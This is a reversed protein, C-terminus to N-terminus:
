PLLAERMKQLPQRREQPTMYFQYGFESLQLELMEELGIRAFQRNLLNDDDLADILESMASRDNRLILSDVAVLRVAAAASTLWNLVAPADQDEYSDDIQAKDQRGENLHPPCNM